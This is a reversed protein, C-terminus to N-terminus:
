NDGRENAPRAKLGPLAPVQRRYARYEDGFYEELKREEHRIVFISGFVAMGALVALVIPSGFFLACGIWMLGEALYIPHRMRAYPGNQILRAPRWGIPVRAPLSPVVALMTTLVWLLLLLGAGAPLLGLLNPVEPQGASWGWRPGTRSILSPVGLHVLPMVLVFVTVMM